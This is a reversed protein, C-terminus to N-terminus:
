NLNFRFPVQFRTGVAKGDIIGPNFQSKQLAQKVAEDFANGGSKLIRVDQVFGRSDITVEALVNAQIGARRESIPYVAEIKKQFSPMRTLKFLPQIEEASSTASQSTNTPSTTVPNPNAVEAPPTPQPTAPAPELAPTKTAPLTLPQQPKPQISNKPQVVPSNAPAAELSVDIIMKDSSTGVSPSINLAFLVFVHLALSILVPVAIQKLQAHSHTAYTQMDTASSM